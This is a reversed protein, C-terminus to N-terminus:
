MIFYNKKVIEKYSFFVRISFSYLKCLFHSKMLFGKPLNSRKTVTGFTLTIKLVLFFYTQRVLSIHSFTLEVRQPLINQFGMARIARIFYLIETRLYQTLVM